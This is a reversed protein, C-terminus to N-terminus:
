HELDAVEGCMPLIRGKSPDSKAEKGQSWDVLHLSWPKIDFDSKTIQKSHIETCLHMKECEAILNLEQM